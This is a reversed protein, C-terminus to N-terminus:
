RFSISKSLRLPLTLQRFPMGATDKAVVKALENIKMRKVHAKKVTSLRRITVSVTGTKKEKDGVVGVYPIWNTGSDRIKWKMTKRRDDADARVMKDRLKKAVSVAYDFHRDSIPVVRVQIPSIWTPMTPLKGENLNKAANELAACLCREVSGMSSHVIIYGKRDGNSDVYTLGYRESDEVDVQVTALQLNRGTSDIFQFENKMAWYHTRKPLLRVLSIIRLEKTLKSFFPRHEEYFPKASRFVHVFDLDLKKLLKAYNITLTRFEDLGQKVDKCFSHIDPMTFARQRRLGVCEGRKELRFSPSLEFIRVPLQKVSVRAKKMMRFVGFDGAFRLFLKKKGVLIKYDRTEFRSAQEYIDKEDMRYMIPTEIRLAGLGEATKIAWDQLLEKMLAGKPYFRLHGVDSAEEYDALELKRMTQIHPPKGHPVHGIEECVMFNKLSPNARIIKDKEIDAIELPRERGKEDIILYPHERSM